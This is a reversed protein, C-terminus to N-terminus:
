PKELAAYAQKAAQWPLWACKLRAPFKRVGALACLEGEGGSVTDAEGDLLERVGRFVVAAEDVRKGTIAVCMMSASAQCIACSAAVFQASEVRDGDLKLFVQVRDGCTPNLAEAQHTAEALVGCHRPRKNHDLIIAQYLEELDSMMISFGIVLRILIRFM